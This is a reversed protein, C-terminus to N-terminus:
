RGGALGVIKPRMAASGHLLVEFEHTPVPRSYLFGQVVSCGLARLVEAQAHTEVRM